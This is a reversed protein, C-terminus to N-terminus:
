TYLAFAHLVAITEDLQVRVMNKVMVHSKPGATQRLRASELYLRLVRPLAVAPFHLLDIYHRSWGGHRLTQAGTFRKRVFDTRQKTRPGVAILAREDPQGRNHVVLEVTQRM